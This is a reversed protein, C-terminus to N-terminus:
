QLLNEIQGNVDDFTQGTIIGYLAILLVLVAAILRLPRIVYGHGAKRNKRIMYMQYVFYFLALGFIIYTINGENAM